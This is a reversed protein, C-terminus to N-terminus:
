RSTLGNISLMKECKSCIWNNDVTATIADFTDHEYKVAFTYNICYVDQLTYNKEVYNSHHDRCQWHSDILDTKNRERSLDICQNKRLGKYM